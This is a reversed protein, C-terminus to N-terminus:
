GRSVNASVCLWRGKRQQWVDDAGAGPQWRALLYHACLYRSTASATTERRAGAGEVPCAASRGSSRRATRLTGDSQQEHFGALHAESLADSEASVRLEPEASLPERESM